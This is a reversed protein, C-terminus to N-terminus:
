EALTQEIEDTVHQWRSTDLAKVKERLEENEHQLRISAALLKQVYAMVSDPDPDPTPISRIDTYEEVKSAVVVAKRDQRDLDPRDKLPVYNDRGPAGWELNFGPPWERILYTTGAGSKGVRIMLQAGALAGYLSRVMQNRTTEAFLKDLNPVARKLADVLYLGTTSHTYPPNAVHPRARRWLEQHVAYALAVGQDDWEGKIAKNTGEWDEVVMQALTHVEEVSQTALEWLKYTSM